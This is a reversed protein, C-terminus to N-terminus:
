RVVDVGLDGDLFWRTQGTLWIVLANSDCNKQWMHGRPGTHYVCIDLNNGVITCHKGPKDIGFQTNINEDSDSLIQVLNVMVLHSHIM